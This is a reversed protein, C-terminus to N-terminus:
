SSVQKEPSTQILYKVINVIDELNAAPKPNIKMYEAATNIYVADEEWNRTEYRVKTVKPEAINTDIVEKKMSNIRTEAHKQIRELLDAKLGYTKLKLSKAVAVLESKTMSELNDPIDINNSMDGNDIGNNVQMAGSQSTVIEIDSVDNRRATSADSENEVLRITFHRNDIHTIHFLSAYEDLFQRLSYYRSKLDMLADKSESIITHQLVVGLDGSSIYKEPQKSIANTIIKVLRSDM